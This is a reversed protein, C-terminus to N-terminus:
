NTPQPEGSALLQTFTQQQELWAQYDAAEEVVVTGRMQSHGVGCLEACLIDFTGTRTPTFWFYTIMGPIMDMKARFEPVYFDHLVDVSRLLIRVPKGVPLHLEGGEIIVDDLGTTDNKNVGLPNEPSIDRPESRGLKGDVGPLRFSWLWQQSVVEVPAADDPVTIFQNWVFLGPVLMAAVGVATGSALLVELKRNEPEYAARNGPKHRFRWVCYAMFSVVAVFVIGTIWFTIVLTSDIYTWNSAIPTWWWPSLVHFLVSGVVLLALILVVAM